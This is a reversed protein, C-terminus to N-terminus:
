PRCADQLRFGSTRVSLDSGLFPSDREGKPGHGVTWNERWHLREAGWASASALSTWPGEPLRWLLGGPGMGTHIALDADFATEAGFAPGFWYHPSRGATPALTATLRQEAGTLGIWMAPPRHGAPTAALLTQADARRTTRGALRLAILAGRDADADAEFPLVLSSEIPRWTDRDPLDPPWSLCERIVGDDDLVQYRLGAADIAAQVCHLYEIGEPMRHATGAGATTVQLVGEQVQVDFALIHSCLYALVGNEVLLSWFRDAYDPGIQRAYPGAFGNVAFVPHHGAVLKWRADEHDRLTAALWDTEVRGEGGLEACLTDVFVMLLEGRRVFYSLGKQGAPGNQPLHQLVDGFVRASMADYTTHNGTTNYLPTTSRDLWAMETDLWYAWQARLATESTTLGIIEDGPYVVFEPAPDLSQVVANVRAHTAAHPAGPVGSCSDAYLVFQHGDGRPVLAPIAPM